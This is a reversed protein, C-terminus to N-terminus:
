IVQRTWRESDSMKKGGTNKRLPLRPSWGGLSISNNEEQRYWRRDQYCHKKGWLTINIWCLWWYRVRDERRYRRAVSFKKRYFPGSTHSHTPHKHLLSTNKRILTWYTSILMIHHHVPNRMQMSRVYLQKLFSYSNKRGCRIRNLVVISM